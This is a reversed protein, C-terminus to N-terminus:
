SRRAWPGGWTYENGPERSSRRECRKNIGRERPVPTWARSGEGPRAVAATEAPPELTAEGPPQCSLVWRRPAAGGLAQKENATPQLSLHARAGGWRARGHPGRGAHSNAPLPLRTSCLALSQEHGDKYLLM